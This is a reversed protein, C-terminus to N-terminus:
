KTSVLSTDGVVADSYAHLQSYVASGAGKDLWYYSLAPALSYPAYARIYFFPCSCM